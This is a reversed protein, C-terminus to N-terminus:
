SIHGSTSKLINGDFKFTIKSTESFDAIIENNNEVFSCGNEILFAKIMLRHNVDFNSIIEMVTAIFTNSGVREFISAPLDKVFMFLNINGVGCFYVVNEPAFATYIIALAHGDIENQIEIKGASYQMLNFNQMTSRAKTMLNVFKDPIKKEVESSYWFKDINLATSGIYEVQYEKDDLKLIGTDLETNWKNYTGAYDMFKRHNSYVKGICIALLDNFSVNELNVLKLTENKLRSNNIKYEAKIIVEMCYAFADVTDKEMAGYNYHVFQNDKLRWEGIVYKKDENEKSTIEMTFYRPTNPTLALAVCKAEAMFVEPEPFTFYFIQINNYSNTTIKFDNPSIKREEDVLCYDQNITENTISYWLNYLYQKMAQPGRKLCEDFERWHAYIENRLLIHSSM